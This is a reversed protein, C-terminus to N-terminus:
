TSGAPMLRSSTNWSDSYGSGEVGRWSRPEKKQEKRGHIGDQSGYSCSRYQCVVELELVEYSNVSDVHRARWPM